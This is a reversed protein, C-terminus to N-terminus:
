AAATSQGTPEKQGSTEAANGSASIRSEVRLASEHHCLADFVIKGVLAFSAPVGQCAIHIASALLRKV